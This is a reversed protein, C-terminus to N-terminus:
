KHQVLHIETDSTIDNNDRNSSRNTGGKMMLRKQASSNSAMSRSSDKRFASGTAAGGIFTDLNEDDVDEFSKERKNQRKKWTNRAVRYGILTEVINWLLLVWTNMM